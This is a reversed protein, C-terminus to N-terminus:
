HSIFWMSTVVSKRDKMARMSPGNGLQTVIVRSQARSGLHDPLVGAIHDYSLRQFGFRIIGEWTVARTRRAICPRTM